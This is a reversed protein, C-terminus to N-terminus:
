PLPEHQLKPVTEHVWFDPSKLPGLTQQMLGPWDHLPSPSQQVAWQPPPL